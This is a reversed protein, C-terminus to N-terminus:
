GGYHLAGQGPASDDFALRGDIYDRLAHETYFQKNGLRYLHGPIRGAYHVTEKLITFGKYNGKQNYRNRGVKRTDQWLIKGGM